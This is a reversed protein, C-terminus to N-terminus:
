TMRACGGTRYLVPLEFLREYFSRARDLDDVYLVTELVGTLRPM